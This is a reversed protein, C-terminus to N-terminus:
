KGWSFWQAYLVVTPYASSLSVSARSDLRAAYSSFAASFGGESASSFSSDDSSTAGEDDDELPSDNAQFSDAGEDDDFYAADDDDFRGRLFEPLFLLEVLLFLFM